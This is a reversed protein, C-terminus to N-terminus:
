HGCHVRQRPERRRIVHEQLPLAVVFAFGDHPPSAFGALELKDLRRLQRVRAADRTARTGMWAWSSRTDRLVNVRIMRTSPKDRVDATLVLGTEM